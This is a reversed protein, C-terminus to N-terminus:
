WLKCPAIENDQNMLKVVPILDELGSSSRYNRLSSLLSGFDLNSNCNQQKLLNAKKEYISGLSEARKMLRETQCEYIDSNSFIAGYMLADGYFYARTLNKEVYRLNYKVKVDCSSDTDMDFCVKIVDQSSPCNVLLNDQKLENLEQKIQPPANVFCYKRDASSLYILDAVKFPFEFPKSFVHFKKGEEYVGSFIYKNPFEVEQGIQSWKGFSKQATKIKQSGFGSFNDCSAYIRTDSPISMLITKGTEFGTELPNLIIGIEKATAATTQTQGTSIIRTAAYIALFLIFAGVIVAFLWTFSFEIGKKNNISM